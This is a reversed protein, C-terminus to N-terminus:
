LDQIIAILKGKLKAAERINEIYKKHIKHTGHSFNLRAADMGADILECIKEVSEVAPGITCIIKTKKYM